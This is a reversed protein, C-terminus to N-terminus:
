LQKLCLINDSDDYVESKALSTFLTKFV